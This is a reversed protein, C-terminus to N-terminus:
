RQKLHAFCLSNTQTLLKHSMTIPLPEIQFHIRQKWEDHPMYM